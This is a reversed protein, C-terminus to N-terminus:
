ANHEESDPISFFNLCTACVQAGEPPRRLRRPMNFEVGKGTLFASILILNKPVSNESITNGAEVWLSYPPHETITHVICGGCFYDGSWEYITPSTV